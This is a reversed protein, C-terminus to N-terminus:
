LLKDLLALFEELHVPKSYLYGQFSHCGHKELFDRQAATEVGEAIVNLGLAHTM